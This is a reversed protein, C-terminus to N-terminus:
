KLEWVLEFAEAAQLGVTSGWRFAISKLAKPSRPHPFERRETTFTEMAAIKQDLTRVIDYFTNPKFAPSFQQFAWETSSPVEYAYLAHVGKGAMPRLAILTARFVLAHDINLDGGHHTFIISPKLRRVAEEITRVIELVNVSDFRNDPYDYHTIGKIGLIQASAQSWERLDQIVAPNVMDPDVCRSTSGKGLVVAQVSTGERALGAITGGCGLVVDDPHAAIVLVSM